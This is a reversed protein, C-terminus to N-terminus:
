RRAGAAGPPPPTVVVPVRCSAAEDLHDFWAYGEQVLTLVLEHRGPRGPLEVVVDVAAARGPAVPHPLDTRPGEGGGVWRYSAHVPHYPWASSLWGRGGNRVEVRVSARGGPSGEVVGAAPTLRVAPDVVFETPPCRRRNSRAALAAVGAAGRVAAAARALAGAPPRATALLNVVGHAALLRRLHGTSGVAATRGRGDFSFVRPHTARVAGLLDAFTADHFRRLAVPNVEVVLDPRFRALTASAGRLVRLESGEVDMKVLDLRDLRREAVFRDLTTAEVRTTAEGGGAPVHSGAPDDESVTFDLAGERDYLALREASVNGAGNAALNAVLYAFNSAAPELAYVRGRPCMRSLALTVPGINAGVDLTVADPALRRRLLAELGPEYAGGSREVLRLVGHDADHGTLALAEGAVRLVM